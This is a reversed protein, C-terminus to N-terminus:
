DAEPEPNTCGCKAKVCRTMIGIGGRHFWQDKFGFNPAQIIEHGCNKCVIM